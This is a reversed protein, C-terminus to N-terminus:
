KKKKIVIAVVAGAVVLAAVCAVIILTIGSDNDEVETTTPEVSEPANTDSSDQTTEPAVLDGATFSVLTSYSKYNFGNTVTTTKAMVVATGKQSFVLEGNEIKAIDGGEVIVYEANELLKTERKFNTSEVGLKVAEGVLIGETKDAKIQMDKILNGTVNAYNTTIGAHGYGIYQLIQTATNITYPWTTIGRALSEKIYESNYGTYSPNFTTNYKGVFETITPLTTSLGSNTLGSLGGVPMEPYKQMMNPLQGTSEYTIVACQGYMDYEEILSKMETVILPKNSKIEIFLLVDKGKFEKFFDELTPMKCGNYDLEKLVKYTCSEVALQKNYLTTKSDHNIVIVKDVTLYIDIEIIDAGAEYAAIAGELTNEPHTSPIGRHGIIQPVRVLSNKEFYKMATDYFGKPDSSVVGYAESLLIALRAAESADDDAMIWTTIQRSNLYDVNDNKVADAPLLAVKALNATNNARIQLLDKETLDKGKLSASYDIVGRLYVYSERAYKVVAPDDSMVTVDKINKEELYSVLADAVKNNKIYFVPIIKGDLGELVEDITAFSENGEKNTAKLDESLYFIANAPVFQADKYSVLKEKNLVFECLTIDGIINTSPQAVSVFPTPAKSPDYNGDATANKVVENASLEKNYFRIAEYDAEHTKSSETHGFFLKGIAGVKTSASTSGILIGDVYM